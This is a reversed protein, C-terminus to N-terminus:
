LDTGSSTRGISARLGDGILNFSIVCLVIAAGPILVVGPSRQLASFQTGVMSGWSIQNPSIGLGLFSLAAEALLGYSMLIASQVFLPARINPLVHRYAVQARSCGVATAAEIYTEERVTLVSGRLVRYLGPSFLVGVTFMATTLGGGIVGIVAIAVVLFPLSLLADAMRSLLMDIWGGMMGALLSLPVAILLCVLTAELAALLSTRAGYITMSLLDRGLTDTGLLHHLTPGQISASLNQYLPDQLPLIPAAVAALVVLLLFGLAGVAIHQRLFLTLFRRRKPSSQISADVQSPEVESTDNASSESNAPTRSMKM